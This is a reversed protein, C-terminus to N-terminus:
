TREQSRRDNRGARSQIIYCRTRPMAIEYLPSNMAQKKSYRNRATFVTIKRIRYFDPNVHAHTSLLNRTYIGFINWRTTAGYKLAPLQRRLRLAACQRQGTYLGLNHRFRYFAVNPCTVRNNEVSHASYQRTAVTTGRKCSPKKVPERANLQTSYNTHSTLKIISKYLKFDNTEAWWRSNTIHDNAITQSRVM